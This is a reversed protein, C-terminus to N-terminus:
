RRAPISKGPLIANLEGAGGEPDVQSIVQKLSRLPLRDGGYAMSRNVAESGVFLLGDDTIWVCSAVEYVAQERDEDAVGLQLPERDASEDSRMAAFAKSKATGFDLCLVWDPAPSVDLKLATEDLQVASSPPTEIATASVPKLARSKPVQVASEPPTGPTPGPGSAARLLVRMAEREADSVVGRFHPRDAKADADLRDLLNQLLLVSRGDPNETM